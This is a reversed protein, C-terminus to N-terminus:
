NANALTKEIDRALRAELKADRETPVSYGPGLGQATLAPDHTTTTLQWSKSSLRVGPQHVRYVTVEVQGPRAGDTEPAFTIRVVRKQQNFFDQSDQRLTSQELDWPTALGASAKDRTSIVGAEADVRELTFRHDRLVTKTAEFAAAYQDAPVRFEGTGTATCGGLAFLSAIFALM